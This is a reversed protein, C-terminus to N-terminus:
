ACFGRDGLAESPAVIRLGAPAEIDLLDRDGSVLWQAEAALAARLFHDDDADRSWARDALAPPIEVWLAAASADHLIRRRLEMSLYRDFKPRWLRAELEAFTAASFVPIGRALVRRVVQAPTGNRSLAASIWVNSDLVVRQRHGAEAKM